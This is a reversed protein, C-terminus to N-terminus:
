PLEFSTFHFTNNTDDFCRSLLAKFINLDDLRCCFNYAKITIRGSGKGNGIIKSYIDFALVIIPNNENNSKKTKTLEKTKNDTMYVSMPVEKLRNRPTQQLSLTPSIYKFCRISDEKHTNFTNYKIFTNNKILSKIISNEGHKSHSFRISSEVKCYVFVKHQHQIKNTAPFQNM